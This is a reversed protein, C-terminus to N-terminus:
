WTFWPLYSLANVYANGLPKKSASPTSLLYFYLKAGFQEFPTIRTFCLLMVAHRLFSTILFCAALVSLAEMTLHFLSKQIVASGMYLRSHGKRRKAKRQHTKVMPMSKKLKENLSYVSLVKKNHVHLSCFSCSCFNFSNLGSMEVWSEGLGCLVLM